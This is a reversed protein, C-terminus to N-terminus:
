EERGIKPKRGGGFLFWYLAIVGIAIFFATNIHILGLITDPAEAGAGEDDANPASKFTQARAAASALVATLAALAATWRGTKRTRTQRM